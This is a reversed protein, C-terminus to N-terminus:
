LDPKKIEESKLNNGGTSSLHLSGIGDIDKSVGLDISAASFAMIGSADTGRTAFSNKGILTLKNARMSISGGQSGLLSADVDILILHDASFSNLQSQLQVDKCLVLTNASITLFGDSIPKSPAETLGEVLNSDVQLCNLKVFTQDTSLTELNGSDFKVSLVAENDKSIQTTILNSSNKGPTQSISIRTDLIVKDATEQVVVGSVSIKGPQGGTLVFLDNLYDDLDEQNKKIDEKIKKIVEDTTKRDTKVSCAALFTMTIISMIITSIIHFVGLVFNKRM